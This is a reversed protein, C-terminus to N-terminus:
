EPECTDPLRNLAAGEKRGTLRAQAAYQSATQQFREVDSERTRAAVTSASRPAAREAPSVAASRVDSRRLPERGFRAQIKLPQAHDRSAAAHSSERWRVEGGAPVAQGRLQADETQDFSRLGARAFQGATDQSAPSSKFQQFVMAPAACRLLGSWRAKTRPGRGGKLLRGSM